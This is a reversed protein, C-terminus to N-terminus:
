TSGHWTVCMCVTIKKKVQM